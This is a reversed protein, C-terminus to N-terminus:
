LCDREMNSVSHGNGETAGATLTHTPEMVMNRTTLTSARTNEATPGNISVRVMCIIISGTGRIPEAMMGLINEMVLFKTVKGTAKISVVMQGNTSEMAM